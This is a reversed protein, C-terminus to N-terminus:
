YRPRGTRGPRRRTRWPRGDLGVEADNFLRHQAQRADIEAGDGFDGREGLDEVEGLVVESQQLGGDDGRADHRGAHFARRLRQRLQEGTEGAAVSEADLKDALDVVDRFARPEGDGGVQERAQDGGAHAGGALRAREASRELLM